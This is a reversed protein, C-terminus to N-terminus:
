QCVAAFSLFLQSLVMKKALAFAITRIIQGGSFGDLCPAHPNKFYM